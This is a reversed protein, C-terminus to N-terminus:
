RQFAYSLKVFVERGSPELRDARREDALLLARQDSYGLFLVTQWNLEYAVLASGGFGASRRPVAFTYLDPDRETDV